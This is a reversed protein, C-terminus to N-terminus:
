SQDYYGVRLKGQCIQKGAKRVHTGGKAYPETNVWNRGKRYSEVVSVERVKVGMWVPEREESIRHARTCLPLREDSPSHSLGVEASFILRGMDKRCASQSPPTPRNWSPCKESVPIQGVENSQRFIGRLTGRAEKGQHTVIYFLFWKEIVHHINSFIRSERITSQSM